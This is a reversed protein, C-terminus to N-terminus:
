VNMSSQYLGVLNLAEVAKAFDWPSQWGGNGIPLPPFWQFLEKPIVYPLRGRWMGEVLSQADARAEVQEEIFVM